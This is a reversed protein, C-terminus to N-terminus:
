SKSKSFIGSSAERSYYPHQLVWYSGVPVRPIYWSVWYSNQPAEAGNMETGAEQTSEKLHQLTVSVFYSMLNAVVPRV